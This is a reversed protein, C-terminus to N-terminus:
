VLGRSHLDVRCWCNETHGKGGLPPVVFPRFGPPFGKM